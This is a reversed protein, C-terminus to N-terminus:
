SPSIELNLDATLRTLILAIVHQDEDGKYQEKSMLTFELFIIEPLNFDNM